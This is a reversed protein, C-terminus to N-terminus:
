RGPECLSSSRGGLFATVVGIPTEAPDTLVRGPIDALIWFRAGFAITLPLLQRYSTGAILRVMHPVLIGVFGILLLVYSNGKNFM